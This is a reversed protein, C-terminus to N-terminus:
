KKSAEMPVTKTAPKKRTANKWNRTALFLAPGVAGLLLVFLIGTFATHACILFIVQDIPKEFVIMGNKNTLEEATNKQGPVINIFGNPAGTQIPNKSRDFSGILYRKPGATFCVMMGPHPTVNQAKCAAALDGVNEKGTYCKISESHKTFPNTYSLDGREGPSPYHGHKKFFDQTNNRMSYMKAAVANEPEGVDFYTTAYQDQMAYGNWRLLLNNASYTVFFVTVLSAPSGDYVAVPLKTRDAQDTGAIEGSGDQTWALTTNSDFTKFPWKQGKTKCHQENLARFEGHQVKYQEVPYPHTFWWFFGYILMGFLGTSSVVISTRALFEELRSSTLKQVVTQYAVVFPNSAKVIQKDLAVAWLGQLTRAHKGPEIKSAAESSQAGLLMSTTLISKADGGGELSTWAKLAKELRFIPVMAEDSLTGYKDESLKRAKDFYNVAEQFQKLGLNADGIAIYCATKIKTTEAQDMTKLSDLLKNATEICESFEKKQLKDEFIQMRDQQVDVM